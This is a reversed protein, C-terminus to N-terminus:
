KNIFFGVLHRYFKILCIIDELNMLRSYLSTVRSAGSPMPKARGMSKMRMTRMMMKAMMKMMIKSIMMVVCSTANIIMTKDADDCDNTFGDYDSGTSDVM